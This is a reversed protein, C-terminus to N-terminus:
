SDNKDIAEQASCNFIYQFLAELDPTSNQVVAAAIAKEAIEHAAINGQEQWSEEMAMVNGLMESDAYVTLKLAEHRLQIKNSQVEILRQVLINWEKKSKCLNKAKKGAAYFPENSIAHWVKERTKDLLCRLAVFHYPTLAAHFLKNEGQLALISSQMADFRKIMLDRFVQESEIGQKSATGGEADPLTVEVRAGQLKEGGCEFHAAEQHFMRAGSLLLFSAMEMHASPHIPRITDLSKELAKDGHM